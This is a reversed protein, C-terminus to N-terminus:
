GRKKGKGRPPWSRRSGILEVRLAPYYISLKPSYSFVCASLACEHRVEKRGLVQSLSALERAQVKKLDAEWVHKSVIKVLQSIDKNRIAGDQGLDGLMYYRSIFHGHSYRTPYGARSVRVAELVGSYRLQEVIQKPDFDDPLLEDNPKLCRIYHPSTANIRKRLDVLQEAFKACVSKM